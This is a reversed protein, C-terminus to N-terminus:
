VGVKDIGVVDNQNINNQKYTEILDNDIIEIIKTTGDRLTIKIKEVM